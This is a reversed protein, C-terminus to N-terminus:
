LIACCRCINNRPPTTAAPPTPPAFYAHVELGGRHQKLRNIAEKSVGQCDYLDIRRLNQLNKIHSITSDTVLPCNDLELVELTEKHAQCLEIVGEDSIQECHSLTMEVIQPCHTAFAHLSQDTILSCDELDLKMLGKCSKALAIFGPDSLFACGSLELVTLRKCGHALAQLSRDTIQTCQSLCLYELKAAGKSLSTVTQDTVFCQLLDLEVLSGMHELSNDFVNETVGECGKIILHALQPCGRLLLGIGRDTIADCWSINIYELRKCGDSIYKLARDTIAACNELNLELLRHCNKGLNECTVDTVKKCKELSLMQINPCQRTFSRLANDQVSECGKLSLNKLFGGCRKALNEVVTGKIDRQFEFFNVEMWNSGDLALLNWYRCTQASRCLTIVDLYSFIRLILEKPLAQNILAGDMPPKQMISTILYMQNHKATITPHTKGQAGLARHRLRSHTGGSRGGEASM